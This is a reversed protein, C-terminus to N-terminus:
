VSRRSSTPSSRPIRRPRFISGSRELKSGCSAREVSQRQAGAGYARSHNMCIPQANRKNDSGTTGYRVHGVAMTGAQGASIREPTFGRQCPRHRATRFVGDDNVRSAASEQGRHQLAYLAYYAHVRVDAENGTFSASCAANKTFTARRIIGGDYKRVHTTPM